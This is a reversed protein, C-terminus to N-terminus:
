IKAENKTVVGSNASESKDFTKGTFIENKYFEEIEADTFSKDQSKKQMFYVIVARQTDQDVELSRDGLLYSKLLEDWGMPDLVFKFLDNFYGYTTYYNDTIRLSRSMSLNLFFVVKKVDNGINTKVWETLITSDSMYILILM